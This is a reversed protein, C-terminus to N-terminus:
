ATRRLSSFIPRSSKRLLASFGRAPMEEGESEKMGAYGNEPVIMIPQSEELKLNGRAPTREGGLERAMRIVLVLADLNRRVDEQVERFERERAEALAIADELHKKAADWSELVPLLRQEQRQRLQDIHRLQDIDSM